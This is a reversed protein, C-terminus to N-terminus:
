ARAGNSRVTPALIAEVGALMIDLGREFRQDPTTASCIHKFEALGDLEPPVDEDAFGEGAELARMLGLEQEVTGVLWGAATQFAATANEITFGADTFIRICAALVRMGTLSGVPKDVLLTFAPPHECSVQWWARAMVSARERWDSAGPQYLELIREHLLDTVAGHLDDKNRVHNYLSMAEVGLAAGLKRMSLADLGEADIMSLAAEAIRERTLPTRPAATAPSV